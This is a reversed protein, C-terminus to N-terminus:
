LKKANHILDDMPGYDSIIGDEIILYANQVVPLYALENGRLMKNQSRTNVLCKINTIISTM